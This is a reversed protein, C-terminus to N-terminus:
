KTTRTQNSFWLHYWLQVSRSLFGCRQYLRQASVNRGQTVVRVSTEGRQDFWDLAAAIMKPGRGQGRAHAAVAFLGIEGLNQERAHCSLYAVARGDMETVLVADAYGQCSKEIWTEYLADCRQTDFNPDSYFRSDRHSTRAIAQLEPIDEARCSRILGDTRVDNSGVQREYTMRIDVLSFQAAEALRLSETETADALFYVCDITNTRCWDIAQALSQRTLSNVNIRAIRRDFFESDWDLYSCLDAREM